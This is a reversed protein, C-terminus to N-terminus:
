TEEAGLHAYDSGLKVGVSYLVQKGNENEFLVLSHDCGVSIKIPKMNLSNLTYIMLPKQIGNDDINSLGLMNSTNKGWGWIKGANDLALM